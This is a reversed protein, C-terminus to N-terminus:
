QKREIMTGDKVVYIKPIVNSRIYARGGDIMNGNKFTKYEHRFQSYQLNGDDDEVCGFTENEIKDANDIYINDGYVRLSFYKNGFTPHPTERYYIDEPADTYHLDTTCVYKIPVGDKESYHEIVKNTRTYPFHKIM